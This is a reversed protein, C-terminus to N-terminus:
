TKKGEKQKLEEDFYRIGKGKYPEPLKLYRIEAAIQSVIQNNYGTIVLINSKPNHIQINHPIKYIIEHSFGLRLILKDDEVNVKYEVGVIKLKKSYGKSLGLIINKLITIYNLNDLNFFYLTNNHNYIKLNKSKQKIITGRPGVMKIGSNNIDIKINEPIQLKYM